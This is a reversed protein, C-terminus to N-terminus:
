WFNREMNFMYVAEALGSLLSGTGGGGGETRAYFAADYWEGEQVNIGWYGSNVIGCRGAVARSETGRSAGSGATATGPTGLKSVVMKLSHPNRNNLPTNVDLTMSGEGGSEAVFSWAPLDSQFWKSTKWGLPTSVQNRDVRWGDPIASAEMDRNQILEAYLGGDGAHNIEEFFIGYMEPSVARQPAAADVTILPEGFAVNQTQPSRTPQNVDGGSAAILRGGTALCIVCVASAVRGQM